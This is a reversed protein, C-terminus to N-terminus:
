RLVIRLALEEIWRLDLETEWEGRWLHKLRLPHREPELELTLPTRGREMGDIYVTVDSPESELVVRVLGKGVQVVRTLQAMRGYGDQIRLTVRYVGDRAYSRSVVPGFTDFRGEGTLDWQYTVPGSFVSSSADYTVLQGPRPREPAYAFRAEIQGVGLTGIQITRTVRSATDMNDVVLLTVRHTGPEDFAWVATMGSADFRGDGTFDWEYRVITGDPDYSDSADFTVTQGVIATEPSHVFSAVPAENFHFPSTAPAAAANMPLTEGAILTLAAIAVAITAIKAARM